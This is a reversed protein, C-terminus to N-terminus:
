GEEISSVRYDRWTFPLTTTSVSPASKVHHGREASPNVVTSGWYPESYREVRFGDLASIPKNSETGGTDHSLSGM